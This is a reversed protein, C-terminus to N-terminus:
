HSRAFMDANMLLQWAKAFNKKFWKADTAYEQAIAKFEDDWILALDSELVYLNKGVAKYEPVITTNSHLEWQNTLLINFFDNTLKTPDETYSGSYGLRLQQVISRPRAALAVWQYPTFGMIKMNDRSAIISDNYYTRPELKYSIGADLADVRGGFFEIDDSGAHKLAVQGALVSLDAISLIGLGSLANRVPELLGIIDSMGANNPWTNQPPFRLQAGNCGGSYDTMRWTSACQWALNIFLAGYCPTGDPGVDPSFVPNPKYLISSVQTIVLKPDVLESPDPSPPLPNQFSQPPPVHKGKCRTAPGMDRTTLVYWANAFDNELSKLDSAYHKVLQLYIPDNILAVDTTMMMINLSSDNTQHWQLAGGPGVGVVWNFNLLNKFYDNSWVTPNQVWPGEIGSTFANPGKGKMPGSGCTGPYPNTPDEAPSPGPGTPCAGHAKGFAHGGGILAVTQSDNLGM